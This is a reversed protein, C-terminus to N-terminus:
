MYRLFAPLLFLIVGKHQDSHLMWSQIDVQLWLGRTCDPKLYLKICFKCHWPHYPIIVYNYSIEMSMNFSMLIESTGAKNVCRHHDTKYYSPLIWHMLRHMIRCSNVAFCLVIDIREMQSVTSAYFGCIIWLYLSILIQEYNM